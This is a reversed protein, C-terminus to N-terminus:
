EIRRLRMGASRLELAALGRIAQQDQSRWAGVPDDSVATLKALPRNALARLALLQEGAATSALTIATWKRRFFRVRLYLWPMAVFLIPAAAVALALVWALWSATSNLNHGAGAIDLAAESAARLPKSLTDGVLPVSDTSDGASGLNDAVGNAGSEVQRGVEAITSVASHVAMGVLIWVATWTIVAVDSFLQALLRGPRSAYPLYRTRM